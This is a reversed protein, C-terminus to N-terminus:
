PRHHCSTGTGAEEEDGGESFVHPVHYAQMERSRVVHHLVLGEETAEADGDFEADLAEVYAPVRLEDDILDHLLRSTLVRLHLRVAICHAAEFVFEVAKLEIM